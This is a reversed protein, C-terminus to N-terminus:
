RLIQSGKKEYDNQLYRKYACIDTYVPTNPLVKYKKIKYYCRHSALCDLGRVKVNELERDGENDADWGKYVITKCLFTPNFKNTVFNDVIGELNEINPDTSSACDVLQVNHIQVRKHNLVEFTSDSSYWSILSKKKSIKKTIFTTNSPIEVEINVTIDHQSFQGCLKSWSQLTDTYSFRDEAIVSVVYGVGGYTRLVGKRTDIHVKLDPNDHIRDKYSLVKMTQFTFSQQKTFGFAIVPKPVHFMCSFTSFIRAYRRPSTTWWSKCVLNASKSMTFPLIMSSWIDDSLAVSLPPLTQYCWNEFRQPNCGDYYKKFRNYYMIPDRSVCECINEYIGSLKTIKIDTYNFIRKNTLVKKMWYRIFLSSSDHRRLIDVYTIDGRTCSHYGKIINILEEQSCVSFLQSVDIASLSSFISSSIWRLDVFSLFDEISMSIHDISEPFMELLKFVHEGDKFDTDYGETQLVKLCIRSAYLSTNNDPLFPRM